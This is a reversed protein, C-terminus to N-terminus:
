SLKLNKLQLLAPLAYKEIFAAKSITLDARLVNVIVWSAAKDPEEKELPDYLRITLTLDGRAM